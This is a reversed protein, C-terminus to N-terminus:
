GPELARVAVLPNYYERQFCILGDRFRVLGVYVNRYDRGTTTVRGESTYEAVLMDPDACDYVATIRLRFRFVDLAPGVHARIADKGELHVPPDAYPLELVVDDTCSALQAVVDGNGVAEFSRELTERNRRRREEDTM